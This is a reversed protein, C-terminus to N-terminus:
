DEFSIISSLSSGCAIRDVIAAKGHFKVPSNRLKERERKPASGTVAVPRFSVVQNRSIHKQAFNAGAQLQVVVKSSDLGGKMLELPIVFETKSGNVVALYDCRVDNSSLPSGAKDFDIVIRSSPVADLKVKCGKKNLGSVVFCSPNITSRLMNLDTM